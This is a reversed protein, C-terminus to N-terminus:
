DEQEVEIKDIYVDRGESLQTKIIAEKCLKYDDLEKLANFAEEFMEDIIAAKKGVVVDIQKVRLCNQKKAVSVVSDLVGTAIGLEHM